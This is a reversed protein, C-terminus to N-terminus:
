QGDIYVPMALNDYLINCYFRERGVFLADPIGRCFEPIGRKVTPWQFTCEFAQLKRGM